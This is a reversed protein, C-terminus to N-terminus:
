PGEAITFGLGIFVDELREAAQTVVHKHGYRRGASAFETLDLREAELQEDLAASELTRRRAEAAAELEARAENIARGLVRRENADLSGLRQKIASLESRKGLLETELARLEDLDAAAALRTVAEAATREIDDTM